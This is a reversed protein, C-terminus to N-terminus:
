FALMHEAISLDYTGTIARVDRASSLQHGNQKVKKHLANSKWQQSGQVGGIGQALIYVPIVLIFFSFIYTTSRQLEMTKSIQYQNEIFKGNSIM